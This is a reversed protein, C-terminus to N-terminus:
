SGSWSSARMSRKALATAALADLICVSAPDARVNRILSLFLPATLGQICRPRSVSGDNGAAQRGALLGARESPGLHSVM